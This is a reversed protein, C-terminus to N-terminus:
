KVKAQATPPFTIEVRVERGGRSTGQFEFSQQPPLEDGMESLRQCVKELTDTAEADPKAPAPEDIRSYGAKFAKALSYSENGDAYRVYYGGLGPKHRYCYDPGVSIWNRDTGGLNCPIELEIRYRHLDVGVIRAIQAKKHDDHHRYWPIQPIQATPAMRSHTHTMLNIPNSPPAWPGHTWTGDKFRAVGRYKQAIREGAADACDLCDYEFQKHSNCHPPMEDGAHPSVWDAPVEQLGMGSDMRVSYSVGRPGLTITEITTPIERPAVDEVRIRNLMVREGIKFKALDALVDPRTPENALVDPAPAPVTIAPWKHARHHLLKDLHGEQTPTVLPNAPRHELLPYKKELRCRSGCKDCKHPYSPASLVSLFEAGLTDQQFVLMGGDPCGCAYTVRVTQLPEFKETM